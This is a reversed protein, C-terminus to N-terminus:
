KNELLYEETKELLWEKNNIYAPSIGKGSVKKYKERIEEMEDNHAKAQLESELEKIKAHLKRKEEDDTFKAGESAETIDLRKKLEDRVSINDPGDERIYTALKSIFDEGSAIGVIRGNNETWVVATMTDNTKIIGSNLALAVLFKSEYNEGERMSIVFNPSSIAKEKLLGRVVSATKGYVSTGLICLGLSKVRKPDSESVYNLAKSLQDAKETKQRSEIEESYEEYVRGYSPHAKLYNYLGKNSDDFRLECKNRAVNLQFAPVRSPKLDKNTIDEVFVKEQGKYYNIYKLEGKRKAMVDRQKITLSTPSGKKVQFIVIGM